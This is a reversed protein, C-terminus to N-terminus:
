QKMRWQGILVIVLIMGVIGATLIVSLIFSFSTDFSAPVPTVPANSIVPKVPTITGHEPVTGTAPPVANREGPLGTATSNRITIAFLSIDPSAARYIMRGNESGAMIVPLCDWTSSNLRCLTVDDWTAHHERIVVLPVDFEILAASIVGSRAPIVDIYQYVPTDLSPVGAPLSSIMWATIISGSLDQGTITIRRFASNGGINVTQNGQLGNVPPVTSIVPYGDDNGSDVTVVPSLTPSPSSTPTPYPSITLIPTLTPDPSSTPAPTLTPDPSVTPVPTMTPSLTLTISPEPTPSITPLITDEPAIVTIYGTRSLTSAVTFNQVTLNVSYVGPKEYVHYPNNLDGSSTNFWTGDGFSWNWLTPLGGTSLDNFRVALPITGYTLSANFDLLLPSVGTAYRLEGIGGSRYSIRPNGTNDLALSSYLGSNMATDVTVNTWLSGTKQAYKLHSNTSDYYSIRPNGSSDFALSTYLGVNGTRDVVEKVWTSGTKTAYKLDRNIGDYYSIAPNGSVNLGLSTYYGTNGTNDVIVSTWTSGTKTAYKLFGHGADYYSIHPNGFSDIALSSYTGVNGSNDVTECIWFDGTKQAYKLKMNLLDQYSIQPNGDYDLALSTYRGVGESDIIERTWNDGNKIAFSLNGLTGDYYSILPQSAVGLKISCYEGTGNVPDATGTFWVGENKTAYKLNRSTWDLYCIWPNGESDLALSTYWGTNGSSDVTETVWDLASVHSHVQSFFLAVILLLFANQISRATTICIRDHM